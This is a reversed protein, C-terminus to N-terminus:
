SVAGGEGAEVRTSEVFKRDFDPSETKMWRDWVTFYLGFNYRVQKHHLDHHASGIVWRAFHKRFGAPYVEVAAHNIIASVTMVLLLVLLVFVNIPIFFLLIPIVIAQLISEIPHFSFSTYSSTKFSDHHVKHIRKFVKPRHMWRHLWYYYTEHVFMYVALSVPLYWLPYDRPDIYVRTYGRDWLVMMAVFFVAFAVSSLASWGIEKLVQRTGPVEHMVRHPKRRGLWRYFVQHYLGSMLVYRLFIIGFLVTTTILFNVPETLESITPLASGLVPARVGSAGQILSTM